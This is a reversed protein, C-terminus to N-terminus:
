SKHSEAIQSDKTFSALRTEAAKSIVYRFKGSPSRAIESVKEVSIRV